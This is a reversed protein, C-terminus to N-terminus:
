IDQWSIFHFAHLHIRINIEEDYFQTLTYSIMGQVKIISKPVRESKDQSVNNYKLIQTKGM